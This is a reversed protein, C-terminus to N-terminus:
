RLRGALAALRDPFDTLIGDVGLDILRLMEAEDDVTWPRVLLRAARARDMFGRDVLVSKPHAAECGCDVAIALPDGEPHQAALFVREDFIFARAIDPASKALHRLVPEHFTSVHSSDVAKADRLAATVADAALIGDAGSGKVEVNLRVRGALKAVTADLAPVFCGPRGLTAGVDIATM